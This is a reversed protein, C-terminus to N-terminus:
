RTETTRTLHYLGGLDICSVGCDIATRMVELNYEYWSSNIVVDYDNLVKKLMEHKTIDVEVSVIRPDGLREAFHQAKKLNRGCVAVNEVGSSELLDRVIVQAMAGYGGLVAIKL